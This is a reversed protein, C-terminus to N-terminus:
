KYEVFNTQVIEANPDSPIKFTIIQNAVFTAKITRNLLPIKIDARCPKGFSEYARLIMGDGDEAQKFVTVVINDPSVSLFSNERPASGKHYCEVVVETPNQLEQAARVIGSEEWSGSHPLLLYTFQQMGEDVYEWDFSSRKETMHDAYMANRIVTLRLDSSLCDYSYKSDTAIALGCLKGSESGVADVFALAPEEEGNAPRSIHGYPIEYTPTVNMGALPFSLKLITHPERWFAKCRVEVERRGATLIFDQWLESKGYRYKARIMARVPGKELLTVSYCQMPGLDDRFVFHGHAWTDHKADDVVMPIAGDCSLVKRNAKKDFLSIFGTNGDITLKVFDNELASVSATLFPSTPKKPTSNKHMWLTRYGFAPVKARFIYDYIDAGIGKVSQVAQIPLSRGKDDTCGTIINGITVTSEVEWPLSNFLVVPVPLEGESWFVWDSKGACEAGEPLTDIQKSIKQLSFNLTKAAFSLSEGMMERADDYAARVSCGCMIDHFHNFLVNEWAKKFGDAPYTTGYLLSAAASFKEARLLRNETTRNLRKIESHSSYCGSAHHQLEDKWVPLRDGAQKQLTDIYRRPSSYRLLAPSEPNENYEDIAALNRRTPGGGHNGVGYYVTMDHGKNAARATMETIKAFLSSNPGNKGDVNCYAHALRCTLVRSGDPGEWWFADEPIEANENAGPRMFVYADMGGGLLLQPLSHAHGFSDVNYGVTAMKGFNEQYFRQSYLAHRAFSEGSPMNCDPQVWWGGVLEWRGEAVRKKIEEFMEPDAEKVWQYYAASSCTFIFDPNENLRDLASRFTAFVEAYGEQWRWLWVPDLHANGIMHLVPKETKKVKKSPM